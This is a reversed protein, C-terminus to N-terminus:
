KGNKRKIIKHGVYVCAHLQMGGEGGGGGGFYVFNCITM